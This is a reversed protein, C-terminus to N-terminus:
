SKLNVPVKNPTNKRSNNASSINSNGPYLRNTVIKSSNKKLAAELEIELTKIRTKM